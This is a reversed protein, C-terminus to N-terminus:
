SDEGLIMLIRDWADTAGDVYDGSGTRIMARRHEAEVRLAHVIDRQAQADDVAAKWRSKWDEESM